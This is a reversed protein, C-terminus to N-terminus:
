DKAVPAGVRRARATTRRLVHEAKCVSEVLGHGRPINALDGVHLHAVAREQSAPPTLPMAM